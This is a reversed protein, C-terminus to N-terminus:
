LIGAALKERILAEYQSSSMPCNVLDCFQSTQLKLWKRIGNMTGIPVSRGSHVKPMTVRFLRKGDLCYWCNIEKGARREQPKVKGNIAHAM